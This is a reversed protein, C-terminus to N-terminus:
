AGEYIQHRMSRSFIGFYITAERRRCIFHDCSSDYTSLTLTQAKTLSNKKLQLQKPLKNILM